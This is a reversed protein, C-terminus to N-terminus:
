CIYWIFMQHTTGRSVKGLEREFKVNPLEKDTFMVTPRSQLSLTKSLRGFEANSPTTRPTSTNRGLIGTRSRRWNKGSSGTSSTDEDSSCVFAIFALFSPMPTRSCLAGVYPIFSKTMVRIAPIQAFEGSSM